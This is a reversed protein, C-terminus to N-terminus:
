YGTHRGGALCSGSYLHRMPRWGGKVSRRKDAKHQKHRGCTCGRADCSQLWWELPAANGGCRAHRGGPSRGNSHGNARPSGSEEDEEQEDYGDEDYVDDDDAAGETLGQAICPVM